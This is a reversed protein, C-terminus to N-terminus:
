LEMRELERIFKEAKRKRIIKNDLIVVCAFNRCIHSLHMKSNDSLKKIEAIAKNEDHYSM